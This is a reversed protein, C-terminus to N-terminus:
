EEGEIQRLATVFTKKINLVHITEPYAVGARAFIERLSEELVDNPKYDELTIALENKLASLPTTSPRNRKLIDWLNAADKLTFPM